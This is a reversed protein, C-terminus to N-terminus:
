TKSSKDMSNYQCRGELEFDLVPFLINFDDLFFGLVIAIDFVHRIM